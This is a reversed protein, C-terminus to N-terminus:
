LAPIQDFSHSGRKIMMMVVMKGWPVDGMKSKKKLM